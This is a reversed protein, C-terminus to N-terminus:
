FIKESEYSNLREISENFWTDSATHGWFWTSVQRERAWCLKAALFKKEIEGRKHRADFWKLQKEVEIERRYRFWTSKILALLGRYALNFTQIESLLRFRPHLFPKEEHTKRKVIWGSFWVNSNILVWLFSLIRKSKKWRQKWDRWRSFEM